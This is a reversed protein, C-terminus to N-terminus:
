GRMTSHLIAQMHEKLDPEGRGEVTLLYETKVRREGRSTAPYSCIALLAQGEIRDAM